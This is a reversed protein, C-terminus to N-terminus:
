ASVAWCGLSPADLLGAHNSAKGTPRGEWWFEEFLLALNLEEVSSQDLRLSM